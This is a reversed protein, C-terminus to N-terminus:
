SGFYYFSRRILGLDKGSEINNWGRGTRGRIGRHIKNLEVKGYPCFGNKSAILDTVAANHRKDTERKRVNELCM